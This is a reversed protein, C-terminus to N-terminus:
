SEIIIRLWSKFDCLSFLWENSYLITDSSNTFKKKKEYNKKCNEFDLGLGPVIILDEGSFSFNSSDTIQEIVLSIATHDSADRLYDQEGFKVVRYRGRRRHLIYDIQKNKHKTTNIM